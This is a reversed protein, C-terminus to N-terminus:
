MGPVWNPLQIFGFDPSVPPEPPVTSIAMFQPPIIRHPVRKNAWRTFESLGMVRRKRALVYCADILSMNMRLQNCNYHSPAKNEHLGHTPLDKAMHRLSKPVLHETTVSAVTEFVEGCLVCQFDWARLMRLRKDLDDQKMVMPPHRKGKKAM